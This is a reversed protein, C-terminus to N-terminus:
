WRLPMGNWEFWIEEEQVKAEENVVILDILGEKVEQLILTLYSNRRIVTHYTYHGALVTDALGTPLDSPHLSIALPLTASFNQQVLSSSSDTSPYPSSLAPNSLRPSSAANKSPRSTLSAM